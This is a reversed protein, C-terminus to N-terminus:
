QIPIDYGGYCYYWNGNSASGYANTVTAQIYRYGYWGGCPNYYYDGWAWGYGGDWSVSAPGSPSSYAVYCYDNGIQTSCFMWDITPPSGGGGGGCAVGVAAFANIVDAYSYGYDMAAYQVGCAGNNFDSSPNWYWRNAHAFVQFAKQTNWGATNALLYFAKNYVGSSYHVGMGNYYGSAHGISAGDLPPNYMYRLATTQKTIDYGVYWDNYGRMYSEAAEGSIDSFAENIGGSQGYYLLGSNQETFGHSVEHASVDLSVLPYFYSYGDGFTMSSGDWFANEYGSGYHVRMTLQFNLPAVGMWNQYMAYVVSGFYHADNLPSYAGNVFQYTNHPCSYAFPSSGSYGNNLNVTKVNANEMLCLWPYPQTVDLYGYHYGYEYYGIKFNGGPGTGVQAHQLNDWQKLIKGNDADVIVTPRTPSGGGQTDAVFDVVYARYARGDEGLYVSLANKEERTHMFGIRSGLSASKALALADGPQLKVASKTLDRELGNVKRGFLTRLNGRDDESVIVHEGFVPLGRFTQQYRYNRVSGMGGRKLLVLRSESDLELAQAHRQHVKSTSSASAIQANRRQPGALDERHLDIRSAALADTGACAV